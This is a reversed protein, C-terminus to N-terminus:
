VPSSSTGMPTTKSNGLNAIIEQIAAIVEERDLTGHLRYSAVYLNALNSNQQEVEAYRSSYAKTEAKIGESRGGSIVNREAATTGGVVVGAAGRLYIGSFRNGMAALHM